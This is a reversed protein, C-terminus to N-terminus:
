DGGASFGGCFISFGDEAPARRKVAYLLQKSSLQKSTAAAPAARREPPGACAKAGARLLCSLLLWSQEFRCGCNAGGCRAEPRDVRERLVPKDREHWKVVRM